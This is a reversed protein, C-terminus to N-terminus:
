PLFYNVVTDVTCSGSVNLIHRVKDKLSKKGREFGSDCQECLILMLGTKLAPVQLNNLPLRFRQAHELGFTIVM